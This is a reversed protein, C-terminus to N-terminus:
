RPAPTPATALAEGEGVDDRSVGHDQHFISHFSANTFYMPLHTPPDPHILNYKRELVYAVLPGLAMNNKRTTTPLRIDTLNNIYEVISNSEDIPTNSMILYTIISLLLTLKILDGFAFSMASVNDCFLDTPPLLIQFDECLRRTWMIDAAAAAMSRYEAETSSRAVITQKKVSWALLATGLFLCYGTTSKRDLQDGAWDSDSYATLLLNTKPLFQGYHLTGQLYRLIRKLPQFHLLLPNHMHQCLKNVAFAIDPRTTTLYQLSGILQHFLDPQSFPLQLHADTPYKSPLPTLLPRCNTMSATHLLATIFSQQSLHYGEATRCFETGLFKSLHGLNRTQFKKQLNSMLTTISTPDIGSILIDDVYVLIYIHIDAQHYYFFSPDASSPVFHQQKLYTSLTAFWLRPAQKLGYIAKHLLCVHHPLHSDEFGQPQTMYVPQDLKGHLFANM